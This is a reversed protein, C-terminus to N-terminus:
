PGMGADQDAPDLGLQELERAAEPDGVAAARRYWRLGEETDRPVTVGRYYMSGLARMASTDGNIAREVTSRLTAPLGPVSRIGALAQQSPEGLWPSWFWSLIFVIIVGIVRTRLDRHGSSPAALIRLELTPPSGSPPPQAGANRLFHNPDGPTLFSMRM